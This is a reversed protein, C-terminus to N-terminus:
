FLELQPNVTLKPLDGWDYHLQLEPDRAIKRALVRLTIHSLAVDIDFVRYDHDRLFEDEFHEPHFCKWIELSRQKLQWGHLRIMEHHHAVQVLWRFRKYNETEHYKKAEAKNAQATEIVIRKTLENM